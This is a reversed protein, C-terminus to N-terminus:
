DTVHARDENTWWADAVAQAPIELCSRDLDDALEVRYDISAAGTEVGINDDRRGRRPIRSGPSPIRPRIAIAAADEFFRESGTFELDEFQEGLSQGVLADSIAQPDAVLGHLEV